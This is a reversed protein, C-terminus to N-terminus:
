KQKLSKLAADKLVSGYRVEKNLYPNFRHSIPNVIPNNKSFDVGAEMALAAKEKRLDQSYLQYHFQPAPSKSPIKTTDSKQQQQNSPMPTPTVVKSPPKAYEPEAPEKSERPERTERPEKPLLEPSISPMETEKDRGQAQKDLAQRYYEQQLKKFEMLNRDEEDQKKAQADMREKEKKKEIEESKVFLDKQALQSDLTNKMTNNSKTSLMSVEPFMKSMYGKYIAEQKKNAFDLKQKFRQRDVDLFFGLPTVSPAPSAMTPKPKIAAEKEKMMNKAKELREIEEFAIKKTEIVKREELKRDKSQPPIQVSTYSHEVDKADAKEKIQQEYYQKTMERLKKSEDLKLQHQKEYELQFEKARQVEEVKISNAYDRKQQKIIMQKDLEEKYTRMSRGKETEPIARSVEVDKGKEVTSKPEETAKQPIEYTDEKAKPALPAPPDVQREGHTEKEIPQDAPLGKEGQDNIMVNTSAPARYADAYPLVLSPDYPGRRIDSSPLSSAYSPQTGEKKPHTEFEPHDNFISTRKKYRVNKEELAISAKRQDYLYRNNYETGKTYSIGQYGVEYNKLYHVNQDPFMKRQTKPSVPNAPTVDTNEEM